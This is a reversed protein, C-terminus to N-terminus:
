GEGPRVGAVPTAGHGRRGVRDRDPADPQWDQSTGPGVPAHLILDADRAARAVLGEMARLAGPGDGSGIATVVARHLPMAEATGGPVRTTVARGAELAATLTGSMRILLENHTAELIASHLELDTAIYAALDDSSADLRELLRALHRAEEDTRRQAALQAARPEIFSRVESLDGFFTEDVGAELQWGLVDPDILNWHRRPLVRTGTKPRSEVLGKSALVKIAERVVTRSVDLGLGLENENPLTTDPPFEGQVIRSGLADVVDRHLGRRTTRHLQGISM